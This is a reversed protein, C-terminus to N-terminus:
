RAAVVSWPRIMLLWGEYMGAPQCLVSSTKAITEIQKSKLVNRELCNGRTSDRIRTSCMVSNTTTSTTRVTMDGCLLVSASTQVSKKVSPPYSLLPSLKKTPNIVGTNANEPASPATCILSSIRL